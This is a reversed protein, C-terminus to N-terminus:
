EPLVEPNVIEHYQRGTVKKPRPRGTDDRTMGCERSPCCYITEGDRAFVRAYDNSVYNGCNQCTPM